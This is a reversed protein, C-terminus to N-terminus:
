NPLLRVLRGNGEDTLLYVFGDRGVRVDRIRGLENKLLEHQKVVKNGQLELRVLMQYKLAGVLLNGQWAKFKDGTYFAMGSPAISPTWQHIPQQMGEKHTGEGVQTSSVYNLGYSIVPWGYNAGAQVINIEDGGKPGHEHTWIEGSQPHIAMGQPNRHGYSYIAPHADTEDTFPNDKPISGDDHLRLVSGASDNKDQARPREGRDGVTIYLYNDKDFVLRSGFHRGSRTKDKMTYIQQLQVLQHGQLKARVVSTGSKDFLSNPQSGAYSLYIWGNKQYDPHLALDLLGGQGGAVIDPLGKIPQPHLKGQEVIRLRGARETILMRGDPLIALSWPSELGTILTEVKFTSEDQAQLNCTIVFLSIALVWRVKTVLISSNSHNDSSLYKIM